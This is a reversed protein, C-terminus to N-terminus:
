RSGRRSRTTPGCGRRPPGASGAAASARARPSSSARVRARALKTQREGIQVPGAGQGRRYYDIMLETPVHEPTARGRTLPAMFIRNGAEIAGVTIPDFLSPM